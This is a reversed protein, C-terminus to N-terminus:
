EITITEEGNESGTFLQAEEINKKGTQKNEDTKIFNGMSLNSQEVMKGPYKITNERIAEREMEEETYNLSLEEPCAKRLAHMEAVKAIMTKPRTVWQNKKTNYEKFDVTAPFEGIYGDEFRRKVTITCDILMGDDDYTFEPKSVGVVGSRMGIKRNHSISTVLSYGTGFPIAYVDKKFFDAITHGQIMGDLMAQRMNVESLGKFTTALLTKVIDPSALERKMEDIALAVQPKNESM